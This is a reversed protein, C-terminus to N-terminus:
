RFFLKIRLLLPSQRDRFNDGDSNGDGDSGEGDDGDDLEGAVGVQLDMPMSYVGLDTQRSFAVLLCRVVM